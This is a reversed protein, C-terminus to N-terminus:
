GADGRAADRASLAAVIRAHAERTLPYGRAFWVGLGLFVAPGISALLRIATVVAESQEGNRAFGLGGLLTLALWVAV